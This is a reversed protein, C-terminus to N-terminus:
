QKADWCRLRWDQGEVTVAAAYGEGPWLETLSWRTLEQPSDAVNLLAAPEGPILSVSFKDLPYSLGESRAKIYSEKRTWCNFFAQTRLTDAVARLSSVEPASFFREAIQEGTLEARMHEIDVGVERRLAVACLALEHSHSLNFRLGNSRSDEVLSPKGYENYNFRLESPHARAYRALITRLMGRAVIFHERDKTFHFREARHREDTSLLELLARVRAATQSLSVRWVHVEDDELTFEEPSPLWLKDQSSGRRSEM